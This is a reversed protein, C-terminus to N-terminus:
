ALHTVIIGFINVQCALDASLLGKLTEKKKRNNNTTTQDCSCQTPPIMSPDFM